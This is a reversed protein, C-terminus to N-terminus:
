NGGSNTTADNAGSRPQQRMLESLPLYPVVDKGAEVIVKKTSGLVEEMTELFLRNRTVEPAKVYQEHVSTFRQAEGEAEQVVRNKYAAAEERLQAAEGRAQGLRQNSYQNSEEVFRDEDQEARQVEDFADAVERPPAADEISVANIQIGANYRDLTAQIIERVSQAIAARNDRFVDQAPRRGVIERIASESVQQVMDDPSEVNFLYDRPNSVRYLVSFQVNVINQDGTLMLGQTANRSGQGGINIQKEVIQAKEVTEVPWFLFHLGPESVEAKPKGFVLEVALEDPQVTYVSQYLWLGLVVAGILFFVGRNSGSKGGGGGPFVKKLRDQGKRLIDELDPPTNQGSNRPGKPGQGWPGGGGKGGNNNNDGGGGWPGGGGGNQNSWPM